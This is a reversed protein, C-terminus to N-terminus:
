DIAGLSRLLDATARRDDRNAILSLPSQGRGNKVNVQAGAVVLRSVVRTLGSSAAAHLATDGAQNAADAAAGTELLKEVTRLVLDESAARGGDILAVGRRDQTASAGIGAALMLATTGDRMTVRADAGGDQLVRVIEPELFRAALLFPTSPILAAPLDFDQSTRRMPSGKTMAANVAAGRALLARVLAVDPRLVAAHLATFGIAAANPDAGGDLLVRAADGHGSYAALTLAPLGDALADNADAGAALLLRTSEADGSRAAFLLPTSGGRRVTYNLAERGARQTVESTVVQEYVSSRARVDAKAALLASVAAPHGQAAAWMLATQQHAAERAEVRAGRAVLARVAAADGTRACNMLPTEGSPLALNPDAGAELLRSVMPASHNTCALYLATAGLDTVANVRAGARLLAEAMALNDRHAAWHLATSGDGSAQHVDARGALLARVATADGARAADVLPTEGSTVMVPVWGVVFMAALAAGTVRM